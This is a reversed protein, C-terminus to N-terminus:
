NDSLYILEIAMQNRTINCSELVVKRGERNRQHTNIPHITAPQNLTEM